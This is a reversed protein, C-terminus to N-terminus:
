VAAVPVKLQAAPSALVLVIEMGMLLAAGNVPALLKVTLRDLAVPPAVNPVGFRPVTVIPPAPAGIAVEL